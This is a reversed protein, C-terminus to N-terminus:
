GGFDLSNNSARKRKDYRAFESGTKENSVLILDKNIVGLVPAGM